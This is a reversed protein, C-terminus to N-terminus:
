RFAQVVVPRPADLTEGRLVLGTVAVSPLRRLQRFGITTGRALVVAPAELASLTWRMVQQGDTIAERLELTRLREPRAFRIRREATTGGLVQWTSAAAKAENAFLASVAEHM